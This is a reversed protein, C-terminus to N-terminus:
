RSAGSESTRSEDLARPHVRLGRPGHSKVWPHVLAELLVVPRVATGSVAPLTASAPKTAASAAVPLVALACAGALMLAASRALASRARRSAVKQNIM